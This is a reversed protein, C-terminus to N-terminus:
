VHLTEALFRPWRRGTSPQTAFTTVEPRCPTNELGQLGGLLSGWPREWLSTLQPNCIYEPSNRCMTQPICAEQLGHARPTTEM